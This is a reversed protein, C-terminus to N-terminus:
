PEFDAELDYYYDLDFDLNHGVKIALNECERSVGGGPAHYLKQVAGLGIHTQCGTVKAM